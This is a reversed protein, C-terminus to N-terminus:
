GLNVSSSIKNIDSSPFCLWLHGESNDLAYTSETVWAREMLLNYYEGSNEKIFFKLSDVWEPFSVPTSENLQLSKSANKTGDKEQWPVTLAAYDSTFVPTERGYKDCYVVGLQYNRQSKISPLGQTEFNSFSNKRDSYSVSVEVNNNLYYNQVYNGYVIRNGTIEQALAKKPVNDWPRLLQNAPLAAYINETTM